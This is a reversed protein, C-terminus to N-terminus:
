SVVEYNFNVMLGDVQTVKVEITGDGEAPKAACTTTAGLEGALEDECEVSDVQFGQDALSGKITDAVREAPVYPAAEFEVDQGDIKTVTVHVDASEEGVNVHCDQTADVEADLEGECDATIEAEPDDATYLDAVQKELEPQTVADPGGISFSCGALGATCAVAALLHALSTRM